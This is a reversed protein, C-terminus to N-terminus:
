LPGTPLSQAQPAGGQAQQEKMKKIEAAVKCAKATFEVSKVHNAKLSAITEDPIQCWDQNKEMYALLAMEAASLPGSKACFETPDIPKGKAAKVMENIALMQADRRQSLKQMDDGCSQPLSPAAWGVGALALGLVLIPSCRTTMKRLGAKEAGRLKGCTAGRRSQGYFLPL